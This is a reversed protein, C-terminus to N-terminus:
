LAGQHLFIRRIYSHIPVLPPHRMNVPRRIRAHNKRHRIRLRLIIKPLHFLRHDHTDTALRRLSLHLRPAITADLDPVESQKISVTIDTSSALAPDLLTEVDALTEDTPQQTNETM